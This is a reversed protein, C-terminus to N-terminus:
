FLGRLGLHSYFNIEVREKVEASSLPPHEVGCGPRKVGPFFETGM